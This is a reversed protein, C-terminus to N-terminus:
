NPLVTFPSPRATGHSHAGTSSHPGASAHPANGAALGVLRGELDYEHAKTIEVRGMMGARLEIDEGDAILADTILVKGDIEPAQGPLRGEWLLDTESSPGEVLLDYINGVMAKNSAKSIKKQIAMLERQRRNITRQDVKDPLAYSGSEEEDSYAFVGLRDFRADQVFECLIEFDQETEGPFGVIMSTRITVGPITKRVRELLRLFQDGTQGRRMLSLIKPSAHQLPVDLYKALPKHAAITDLLRQTIRNPYCYLFRIWKGEAGPLGALCELLIPLGDKVGLDEGYYTTDQGILNVEKVGQGFMSSVEAMVSEFRRSRFHGRIKPIVCFSCPHDCGETIKVYASHRPTAFVRPTFEHYLYGEDRQHLAPSVPLGKAVNLISELENTGVVADVEPIQQQIDNRYREVLCGAVILRQASGSKKYEAMELITDISEKKAPDIFSCTNVVIVDADDAQPTLQFGGQTLLGM